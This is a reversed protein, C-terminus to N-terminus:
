NIKWGLAKWMKRYFDNELILKSIQFKNNVTNSINKVYEDQSVGDELDKSATFKKTLTSYRGYQAIFSRNSYIVLSESDSLLDRGM